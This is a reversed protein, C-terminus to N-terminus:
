KWVFWIQAILTEQKEVCIGELHPSSLDESILNHLSLLNVFDSKGVSYSPHMAVSYIDARPKRREMMKARHECFVRCSFACAFGYIQNVVGPGHTRCTASGSRNLTPEAPFGKRQFRPLLTPSWRLTVRSIVTLERGLDRHALNYFRAM